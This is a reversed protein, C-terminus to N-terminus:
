QLMENMFNDCQLTVQVDSMSQKKECKYFINNKQNLFLWLRHATDWDCM